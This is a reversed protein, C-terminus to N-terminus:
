KSTRRIIYVGPADGNAREGKTNYIKSDQPAAKGNIGLVRKQTTPAPQDQAVLMPNGPCSRVEMRDGTKMEVHYRDNQNLATGNVPDFSYFQRTAGPIEEDNKFWQFETFNLGGLEPDNNKVVLVNNWKTKVAKYSEIPNNILFVYTIPPELKISVAVSNDGYKEIPVEYKFEENKTVGNIEIDADASIRITVDRSGDCGINGRIINDLTEEVQKGNIELGINLTKGFQIEFEVYLCGENDIVNSIVKAQKGGIDVTKGISFIEEDFLFGTKRRLSFKINYEKEAEFKGDAPYPDWIAPNEIDFNGGDWGQYSVARLGVVPTMIPVNVTTILTNGQIKVYKYDYGDIAKIEQPGTGFGISEDKNTWFKLGSSVYYSRNIATSSAGTSEATLVGSNLDIDATGNGKTDSVSIGNDGGKTTITPSGKITLKKVNIGINKADVNLSGSGKITIEGTSHIGDGGTSKISNTGQAAYNLKITTNAPLSVAQNATTEFTFGSLELTWPAEEGTVEVGSGTYKDSSSCGKYLEGDKLCLTFIEAAMATLPMLAALLLAKFARFEIKHVM